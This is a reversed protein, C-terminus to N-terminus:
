STKKVVWVEQELQYAATDIIHKIVVCGKLLKMKIFQPPHYAAFLKKGEKIQDKIVLNGSDYKEKDAPLLRKASLDGHTTFILIGNPKITRFLEEIWAYHLRESLHTFISIAYVCDFIEAKLPLPPESNNKFFRVNKINKKCWNISKENYDTGFLEIKGFGGIKELHRIVRAPGCGWECIQIENESVHERILDSILGSHRLGTDYYSQWNAHNYADYALHAPPPIFDPHQAVFLKNPKRNKLVNGVFMLYDAFQLLHFKRLYHAVKQKTIAVFSRRIKPALWKDDPKKAWINHYQRGILRNQM